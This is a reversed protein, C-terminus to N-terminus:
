STESLDMRLLVKVACGVNITEELNRDGKVTCNVYGVMLM